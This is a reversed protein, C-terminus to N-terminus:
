ATRAVVSSEAIAALEDAIRSCAQPMLDGVAELATPWRNVLFIRAIARARRAPGTDDALARYASTQLASDRLSRAINEAEDLLEDARDPSHARAALAVSTLTRSREVPNTIRAATHGADDLLLHARVRHGAASAADAAETLAWARDAPNAMGRAVAEARDLDDARIAARLVTLLATAQESPKTIARAVEQARQLRGLGAAADVVATLALARETPDVVAHAIADAYELLEVGREELVSGATARVIAALARTQRVAGPITRGVAVADAFSGARAAAAAVSWLAEAQDAPDAICRAIGAADAFQGLEVATRVLASLPAARDTVGTIEGVAARFGPLDGMGAAAEAVAALVAARSRHDIASDALTHLRALAKSARGPNGADAAARAVAVLVAAREGIDTVADAINEARTLDGTRAAAHGVSALARAREAHNAILGATREARALQGVAAAAEAVSALVWGREAAGTVSTSLREVRDLVGAVRAPDDSPAVLAAVRSLARAREASDSTARAATEAQQLLTAARDEAGAGVAAGAVTTLARAREAPDDVSRAVAEARRLEGRACAQRVLMTLAATRVRTCDIAGALIEARAFEGADVAARVVKALAEARAAPDNIARALAEARAPEGVHATAEALAAALRTREVPSRITVVVSEAERVLSRARVDEGAVAACRAASTLAWARATPHDLALATREATDVLRAAREHDGVAAATRALSAFTSVQDACATASRAVAEAYALMNNGCRAKDVARAAAASAVSLLAHNRSVPNALSRAIAEARGWEGLEAAVRLVSGLLWAQEAHDRSARAEFEAADLHVHDGLASAIGTWATARSAPDALSRAIDEARRVEGLAAATRAVAVLADERRPQDGIARAIHEAHDLLTTARDGRGTTAAAVGALARARNALDPMSDAISEARNPHGIRAWVAPLDVPVGSNREVLHDRHVALRIMETVDPQEGSVLVHQATTVEALSAADGGSLDLMRDHRDPDTACAVMRTSDGAAVLMPYYGRLLYEPTDPPWRLARYRDAWRHVRERYEALRSPGLMDLAAAQLEEHALVYVERTDGPHHGPDRRAFSRGTVTALHDGVQWESRGTLAALDGATLGGGTAAVLGLLDRETPGGHVLNRLEREMEARVAHAEPSPALDRVVAGRRLPHHRPVDSPIPPNPRGSVVVRMGAPPEVPLLAAISHVDPGTDVGRDEDLGDVLLVLREDRTRCAEAADALLGLLHAERTSEGLFQPMDEGLLALLQELVNDVFASRDNQGHLRATVFFSVVRVGAPPHLAFWAM